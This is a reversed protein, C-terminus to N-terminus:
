KKKLIFCTFCQSDFCFFGETVGIAYVHYRDTNQNVVTMIILEFVRNRQM